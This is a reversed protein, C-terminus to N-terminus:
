KQGIVDPARQTCADELYLCQTPLAQRLGPLASGRIHGGFVVLSGVKCM